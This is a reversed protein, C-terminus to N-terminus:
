RYPRRDWIKKLVVRGRAPTRRDRNRGCVPCEAPMVPIDRARLDIELEAILPARLREAAEKNKTIKRADDWDRIVEALAFIQARAAQAPVEREESSGPPLTGVSIAELKLDWRDPLNQTEWRLEAPKDLKGEDATKLLWGWMRDVVTQVGFISPDIKAAGPEDSEAERRIEEKLKTYLAGQTVRESWKDVEKCRDPYHAEFTERDAPGEPAADGYDSPQRERVHNLHLRLRDTLEKGHADDVSPARALERECRTRHYAWIVSLVGGGVVIWLWLRSPIHVDPEIHELLYAAAALIAVFGALWSWVARWLFEAASRLMEPPSWLGM